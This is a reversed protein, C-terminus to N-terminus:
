ELYLYFLCYGGTIFHNRDFFGGIRLPSSPYMTKGAGVVQAQYPVVDGPALISIRAGNDIRNILRVKYGMYDRECMESGMQTCSQGGITLLTADAPIASLDETNVRMYVRPTDEGLNIVKFRIHDIFSEGTSLYRQDNIGDPTQIEIWYKLTDDVGEKRDFRFKYGTDKFEKWSGTLTFVLCDTCPGGCDPYEEGNNQIGDSCTSASQITTTTQTQLTTETTDPPSYAPTTTETAPTTEPPLAPPTPLTTDVTEDSDCVRDYNSDICCRAGVQIYPPSCYPQTTETLKDQIGSLDLDGGGCCLCGSALVAAAFLAIVSRM